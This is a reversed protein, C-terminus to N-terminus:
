RIQNEDRLRSLLTNIDFFNACTFLASITVGLVGHLGVGTNQGTLYLNPVRTNSSIYSSRPNKCDKLIGYISGGPNNTYDHFTLPSATYIDDIVERINLYRKEVLAILAEAKQKKYAIYDKGRAEISTDEWEKVENYDMFSAIVISEAYEPNDKDPNTYLMCSPPWEVENYYAASWVQDTNYIYVNSNIYKFAQKKLIIYVCFVSITNPLGEIRNIYAKRFRGSEVLKITQAPHINSIFSKGHIIEGEKLEVACAKDEEFLFKVVEKKKQVTGGNNEIVQELALALKDSGESFKYASQIYHHCIIAHSLLSSKEPIGAYLANPVSLLTKLEKNETLSDIYDYASEFAYQTEQDRIDSIEKFNLIKISSWIERLKELYAEIAKGEQPFYSLLREKYGTFGSANCYEKDGIFIKEYCSADLKKVGIKDIIGFHKFVQYLFQGKDLGGVYHMASNFKVGKRVFTQLNGGIQHHKELVCVQKDIQSLFAGCLLGGLGGGVIVVDYTRDAM